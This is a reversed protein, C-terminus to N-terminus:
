GGGAGGWRVEGSVFAKAEAGYGFGYGEGLAVVGVGLEFGFVGFGCEASFCSATVGDFDCGVGGELM